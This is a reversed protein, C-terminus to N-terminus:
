AQLINYGVIGTFGNLDGYSDGFAAEPVTFMDFYSMLRLTWSGQIGNGTDCGDDYQLIYDWEFPYVDDPMTGKIKLDPTDKRFFSGGFVNYNFFQQFGPYLALISNPTDLHDKTFQDKYFLMGFQSAVEQWDIGADTNLNGVALRNFYKRTNGLGVLGMVGNPMYNDEQDNKIFDFQDVSNSGDSNLLTVDTYNGASTGQAPNSGILTAAKAVLQDNMDERAVRMCRKFTEALRTEPTTGDEQNQRVYGEDLTEKVETFLNPEVTEIADRRQNVPDCNTAADNRSVNENGWQPNYRIEVPRYKNVDSTERMITKITDPNTPSHLQTLLGTFKSYNTPDNFQGSNDPVLMSRVALLREEWQTIFSM